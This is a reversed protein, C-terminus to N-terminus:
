EISVKIRRYYPLLPFRLVNRTRILPRNVYLKLLECFYPTGCISYPSCLPLSTKVRKPFFEMKSIKFPESDSKQLFFM